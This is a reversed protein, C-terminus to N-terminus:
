GLPPWNIEGKGGIHSILPDGGCPQAGRKIPLGRLIVWFDFSEDDVTNVLENLLSVTIDDDKDISAGDAM